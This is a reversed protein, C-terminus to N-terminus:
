GASVQPARVLSRLVEEGVVDEITDAIVCAAEDLRRGRVRHANPSEVWQSQFVKEWEGRDAIYQQLITRIRNKRTEICCRLPLVIEEGGVLYSTEVWKSKQSM